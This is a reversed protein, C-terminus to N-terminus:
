AALERELTEVRAQAQQLEVPSASLEAGAELAKAQRVLEANQKRLDDQTTRAAALETEVSRLKEQAATQEAQNRQEDGQLESIAKDRKQLERELKALKDRAQESQGVLAELESVRKTANALEAKAEAIERRTNVAGTQTQEDRSQWDAVLAERVRLE